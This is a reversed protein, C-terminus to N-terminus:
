FRLPQPEEQNFLNYLNRLNKTHEDYPVLKIDGESDCGPPAQLTKLVFFKKGNLTTTGDLLVRNLDYMFVPGRVTRALGTTVKQAEQFIRLAEAPRVRFCSQPHHDAEMFMYYPVMGLNIQKMWMESWAEPSDNVDKVLPGQTRIIAGTNQIRKVAKAVEPHDLERPHTFHGCFNLHKGKSLIYEFLRLLNDADKDTTFRFPWYALAKSSLRIVKVSDIALVPDIFKQLNKANVILPDAGTFLCDTVQPNAKLWAVPTQPDTYGSNQQVARDGFLIWRFCYNCYSHCTRMMPDPFLSVITPFNSYMGRIRRGTEDLILSENASTPRPALQRKLKSVYKQFEPDLESPFPDKALFDFDVKPLMEKRPFIYRFIPDHPVRDWDILNDLVFSNVKFHFVKSLITFTHQEKEPLLSYYDSKRFKAPSYSIFKM